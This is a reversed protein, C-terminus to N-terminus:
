RHLITGPSTRGRRGQDLGPANEAQERAAPNARRPEQKGSGAGGYINRTEQGERESMGDAIRMKITQRGTERDTVMVVERTRGATARAESLIPSSIVVERARGAATRARTGQEEELPWVKRPTGTRM